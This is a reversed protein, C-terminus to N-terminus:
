KRKKEMLVPELFVQVATQVAPIRETFAIFLLDDNDKSSNIPLDLMASDFNAICIVDGDNAAYLPKKQPDLPDRFLVSGAFVWDVDLPKRTKVNQIWDQAPVRVTRDTDQYEVFVKITTGAAPEYKPQFKVPHGAAAGALTLATHIHRADVDAALIAEHEKGHKRTLLQELQGMRLCVYANVRVRRKDGPLVELFVNKGVEVTKIAQVAPQNAQKTQSLEGSRGAASGPASAGCGVALFLVPWTLFAVKVM